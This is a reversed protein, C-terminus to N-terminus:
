IYNFINYFRHMLKMANAKYKDDKDKREERYISIIANSFTTYYYDQCLDYKKLETALSRLVDVSSDTCQDTLKIDM